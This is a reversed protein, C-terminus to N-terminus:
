LHLFDNILGAGSSASIEPHFQVGIINEVRVISAFRTGKFETFGFIASPSDPVCAFSHSFFFSEVRRAETVSESSTQWKETLAVDNWGIHRSSQIRPHEPTCKIPYVSGPILNLCEVNTGISSESSTTMMLQMGLCIGLIPKGSSAFEKISSTFESQNLIKMAQDATGVGPIILHSISRLQSPQEILCHNIELRLLANSVSTPTGLGYSLVGINQSV